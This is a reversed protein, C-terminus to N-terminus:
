QRNMQQQRVEARGLYELMQAESIVYSNAYFDQIGRSLWYCHIEYPFESIPKRVDEAMFLGFAYSIARREEDTAFVSIQM